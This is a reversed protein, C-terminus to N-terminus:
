QLCRCRQERAAHGAGQPETAAATRRPWGRLVAASRAYHGSGLMHGMQYTEGFQQKGGDMVEHYAALVAQQLEATPAPLGATIHSAGGPLLRDRLLALLRSRVPPQKHQQQQQQKLEHEGEMNSGGFSSVSDAARIAPPDAQRGAKSSHQQQEQLPAAQSAAADFSATSLSTGM